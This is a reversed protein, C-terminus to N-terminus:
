SEPGHHPDLKLYRTLEFQLNDRIYRNTVFLDSVNQFSFSWSQLTFLQLHAQINLQNLVQAASKAIFRKILTNGVNSGACVFIFKTLSDDFIPLSSFFIVGQPFLLLFAEIMAGMEVFVNFGTGNGQFRNNKHGIDGNHGNQRQWHKRVKWLWCCTEM